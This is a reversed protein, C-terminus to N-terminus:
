NWYGRDRGHYPLQKDICGRLPNFIEHLYIDRMMISPINM